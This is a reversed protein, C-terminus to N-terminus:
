FININQNMFLCLCLYFYLYRVGAISLAGAPEVVISETNYLELLSSCVVGEPVLQVSPMLNSIIEHTRKGPMGVAAGDVFPNLSKLPEINNNDVALKM